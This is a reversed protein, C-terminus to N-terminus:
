MPGTIPLWVPGSVMPRNKTPVSRQGHLPQLQLDVGGRGPQVRDAGQQLVQADGAQDNVVLPVEPIEQLMVAGIPVIHVVGQHLLFLAQAANGEIQLVTGVSVVGQGPDAHGQGPHLLLVRFVAAQQQGHLVHLVGIPLVVPLLKILRHLDTVPEDDDRLPLAGTHRLAPHGQPQVRAEGEAGAAMGGGAQAQRGQFLVDPAPFRHQVQAAAAANQGNGGQQQSRVPGHGAVNVLLAHVHGIFVGGEVPHAAVAVGDAPAVHYRVPGQAPLQAAGIVHHHGVDHGIDDLGQGGGHARQDPLPAM